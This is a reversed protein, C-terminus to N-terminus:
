KKLKKINQKALYGLASYNQGINKVLKGIQRAGQLGLYGISGLKEKEYEAQTPKHSRQFAEFAKQTETDGYGGIDSDYQDPRPKIKKAM